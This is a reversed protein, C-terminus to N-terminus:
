LLVKPYYNKGLYEYIQLYRQQQKKKVELISKAKTFQLRWKTSTKPMIQSHVEKISLRFSILQGNFSVLKGNENKLNFSINLIFDKSEM